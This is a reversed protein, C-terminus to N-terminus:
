PCKSAITLITISPPVRFRVPLISTGVGTAVYLHRGEEVIHGAVFRQGYRSPVIPSGILPFRVQGGHTHGAITLNIRDPLQPFVDPNHTLVLLPSEDTVAALARQVNHPGTRFDSVGALWVMGSPTSVRVSRDELVEIGAGTMALA